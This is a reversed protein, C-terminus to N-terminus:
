TFYRSRLTLSGTGVQKLVDLATEPLQVGMRMLSKSEQILELLRFYHYFLLFIFFCVFVYMFYVLLTLTAKDVWDGGM